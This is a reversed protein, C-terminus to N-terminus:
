SGYPHSSPLLIILSRLVPIYLRDAAEKEQTYITRHDRRLSGGDECRGGTYIGLFDTRESKYDCKSELV